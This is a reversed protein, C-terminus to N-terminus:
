VGNLAGWPNVTCPICGEPAPDEELGTHSVDGAVGIIEVSFREGFDKRAQASKFLTVFKGIPNQGPFFRHALTENIIAMRSALAVDSRFLTTYPFLTSRPPRRIM